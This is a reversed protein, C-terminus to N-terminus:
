SSNATLCNVFRPLRLTFGASLPEGHAREVSRPPPTHHEADSSQAPKGEDGAGRSVLM